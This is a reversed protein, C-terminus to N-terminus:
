RAAAGLDTVTDAMQLPLQNDTVATVPSVFSKKIRFTVVEKKPVGISVRQARDAGGPQLHLSYSIDINETIVRYSEKDM